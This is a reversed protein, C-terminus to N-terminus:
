FYVFLGGSAVIEFVRPATLRGSFSTEAFVGFYWPSWWTYGLVGTMGPQVGVGALNLDFAGGVYPTGWGWKDLPLWAGGVSFSMKYREMSSQYRLRTAVQPHILIGIDISMTLDGRFWGLSPVRAGGVGVGAGIFVFRKVRECDSLSPEKCVPCRSSKATPVGGDGSNVAGKGVKKIGSDGEKRGSDMDKRRSGERSSTTAISLSPYIFLFLVSLLCFYLTKYNNLKM